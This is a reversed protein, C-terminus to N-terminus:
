LIDYGYATAFLRKKEIIYNLDFDYIEGSIDIAFLLAYACAEYNDKDYYTTYIM